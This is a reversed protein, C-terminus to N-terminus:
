HDHHECDPSLKSPTVSELSETLGRDQMMRSLAVLGLRVRQKATSLSIQMASAIEPFTLDGFFRLRLADSQHQPLQELLEGLLSASERMEAQKSPQGDRCTAGVMGHTNEKGSAHRKKFRENRESCRNCQNILVRWLWTRFGYAENYSALYRFANIFSEQVAEDALDRNGLRSLAFRFLSREYRRVLEDFRAVEGALVRKVLLRDDLQSGDTTKLNTSL